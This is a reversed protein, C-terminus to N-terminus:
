VKENQAKLHALATATCEEIVKLDVKPFIDIKGSTMENLFGAVFADGAGITNEAVVWRNPFRTIAECKAPHRYNIIDRERSLVACGPPVYLQITRYEEERIVLFDVCRLNEELIMPSMYQYNCLDASVFQSNMKRLDIDLMDLYSVHTWYSRPFKDMGVSKHVTEWQHTMDNEIKVFSTATPYLAYSPTRIYKAITYVGGPRSVGNIVDHTGNGIIKLRM